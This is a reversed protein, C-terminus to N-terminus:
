NVLNTQPKGTVLSIGEMFDELMQDVEEEKRLSQAEQQEVNMRDVWYRVGMALCDLRDDHRLAGRDKTIRTMQYFLQFSLAAEPPLHQTSQFDQHVVQTDVILRHQNMVPELVDIIRKEKQTQHRVEEIGVPYIKKLHPELLAQFMGDGFNSEVLVLNVKHNKAQKCLMGMVEDSYGGGHVGGQAVLFLNGSLMKVVCWSTEDRGRGSPDVALVSGEYPIWKSGIDLPRYWKDGHLGVMPIDEIQLYPARQFVLTEPATDTSLDMVVLDNLKLPYRDLDSLSTDLMFQLAFGSKGYSLEREMLDEESFRLPDTPEGPTMGAKDVLENIFPSIRGLYKERQAELPFRATWIRMEYGRQPLVDYITQECQPTGLFIVQGGPSLVADFEKISEGLKERMMQTQSNSPIEIDDAIILDARSGSLQGTIGVSKVSPAHAAKSPGVDFSIKSDRQGERPILEELIPMEKILRQTFTSFDDARVKSASVVLCKIDPNLLLRYCVYASTIYSKGVGRFAEVVVRRPSKRPDGIYESIDLQIPTPSPLRLHKWCEMLFVQFTLRNSLLESRDM